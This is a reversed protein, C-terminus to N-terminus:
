VITDNKQVNSGANKYPHGLPQWHSVATIREGSEVKSVGHKVSDGEPFVYLSYPDPKFSINFSPLFIQGGEFESNLVLIAVALAPGHSHPPSYAGTPHRNGKFKSFEIEPSDKWALVHSVIKKIDENIDHLSDPSVGDVLKPSPEKGYAVRYYETFCPPGFCEDESIDNARMYEVLAAATDKDVYEKIELIPFTDPFLINSNKHASKLYESAENIGNNTEDSKENEIDWFLKLEDREEFEWFAVLVYRDGDVIKQVGHKHGAGGNFTLLSGAAPSISFDQDPFYLEGGEYNDNLYLLTALPYIDAHIPGSSGRKYKHFVVKALQMPKNTHRNAADNMEHLLSKIGEFTGYDLPNANASSGFCESNWFIAGSVEENNHTHDTHSHLSCSSDQKDFYAIVQNRKSDEIFLKAELINETHRVWDNHLFYSTM